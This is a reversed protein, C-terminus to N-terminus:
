YAGKKEGNVKKILGEILAKHKSSEEALTKLMERAKGAKTEAIGTWFVASDLHGMYIPIAKEEADLSLNLVKLLEEKKIM